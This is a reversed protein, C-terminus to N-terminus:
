QNDTECEFLTPAIDHLFFIYFASSYFLLSKFCLRLLCCRRQAYFYVAPPVCFYLQFILSVTWLDGYCPNTIVNSMMLANALLPTGQHIFHYSSIISSVIDSEFLFYCSYSNLLIRLFQALNDYYVVGVITFM